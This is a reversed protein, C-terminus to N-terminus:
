WNRTVRRFTTASGTRRSLTEPDHKSLIYQVKSATWQKGRKLIREDNLMKATSSNTSSRRAVIRNIVGCEDQNDVLVRRGDRMESGKGYATNGLVEDGRERRFEISAKVRKSTTQSERQATVIAQVFALSENDYWIKEDAAYIGVGRESLEELFALSQFVNRSLRDVRYGSVEDGKNAYESLDLLAAPVQRYASTAIQIVKIRHDDGHRLRAARQLLAAQAPLSVHDPGVQARSSVRCFCYSTSIDENYLYDSIVYPCNCDDDDVWASSGAGRYGKYHVKFQWKGDRIRHESIKVIEVQPDEHTEVPEDENDDSSDTADMALRQLLRSVDAEYKSPIEISTNARQRKRDNTPVKREEDSDYTYCDTYETNNANSM